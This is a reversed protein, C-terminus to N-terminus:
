GFYAMCQRTLACLRGSEDFIKGSQQTYGDAAAEVEFELYFWECDISEPPVVFELSWSLSSAPVPPKEFHSLVVPPPIDALTVIKETPFDTLKSKHRVWMKLYPKYDGSFPIGGGVWCGEFYQLFRPLSNEHTSFPIGKERPIPDAKILSPARFAERPNGFVAMAQLCVVSDAIVEASCQTVNKGQRQIKSDVRVQGAPLPAIFSVMLSRLPPTSDLLKRMGTVAFAASIGGFASRGQTWNESFHTTNTDSQELRALINELNSDAMELTIAESSANGLLCKRHYEEADKRM